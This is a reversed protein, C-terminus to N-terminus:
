AETLLISGVNGQHGAIPMFKPWTASHSAVTQSVKHGGSDAYLAACVIELTRLRL